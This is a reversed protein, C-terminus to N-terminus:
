YLYSHSTYYKPSLCLNTELGELVPCRYTYFFSICKKAKSKFIQSLLNKDSREWLIEKIRREKDFGNWLPFQVLCNLPPLFGGSPHLLSYSLYLNCITIECDKGMKRLVKTEEKEFTSPGRNLWLATSVSSTTQTWRWTRCILIRFENWISPDQKRTKSNLFSFGSISM